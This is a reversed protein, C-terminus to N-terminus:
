LLVAVIALGIGAVSVSKMWYSQPGAAGAMHPRVVFPRERADRRVYPLSQRAM